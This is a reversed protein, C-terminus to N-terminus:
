EITLNIKIKKIKTREIIKLINITKFTKNPFFVRIKKSTGLYRTKYEEQVKIKYM